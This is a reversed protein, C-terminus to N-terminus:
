QHWCKGGIFLPARARAVLMTLLPLFSPLLMAVSSSSMLFSPLFSLILICALSIMCALLLLWLCAPWILPLDGDRGWNCGEGRLPHPQSPLSPRLSPPLSVDGLHSKSARKCAQESARKGAQRCLEGISTSSPPSALSAATKKDGGRAGNYRRANRSLFPPPARDPRPPRVDECDGEDRGDERPVRESRADSLLLGAREM